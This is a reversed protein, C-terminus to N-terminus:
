KCAHYFDLFKPFSKSVVNKNIINVPYGARHAVMMAMALRHDQDCDFEFSELEHLSIKAVKLIRMGDDRKEFPRKIKMFFECNKEIRNSEKYKLHPAGYLLSEELSLSCLVALVPFLDPTDSLNWSTGKLNEQYSFELSGHQFKLDVGMDNLVLPFISDPQFSKEPFPKLHVKAGPTVLALSALAFASSMDKEVEYNLLSPKQHKLIVLENGHIQIKMGLHKLFKLTMNFYSQSMVPRQFSVFLDFPLGWSSLLLASLFQSSQQTRVSLSDGQVKWGKSVIHLRNESLSVHSGLQRLIHILDDQSREFLRREGLLEFVGAERSVRLAMFRLVTGACGCNISSFDTIAKKMFVVDDAQSNYKIEFKPFFSKVVLARNVLSKSSPPMGIFSFSM